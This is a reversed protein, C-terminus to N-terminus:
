KSNEAAPATGWPISEGENLSISSVEELTEKNIVKLDTAFVSSVLISLASFFLMVKKM